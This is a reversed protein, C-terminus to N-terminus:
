LHLKSNPPSNMVGIWKLCQSYYNLIPSGVIAIDHGLSISQRMCVISVNRSFSALTSPASSIRRSAGGRNSLCTASTAALPPTYRHQWVLPTESRQVASIISVVSSGLIRVRTVFCLSFPLTSTAIKMMSGSPTLCTSAVTCSLMEQNEPPHCFTEKQRVLVFPSIRFLFERVPPFRGMGTM